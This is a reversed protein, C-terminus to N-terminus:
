IRVPNRDSMELVPGKVRRNHGIEVVFKGAVVSGGEPPCERAAPPVAGGRLVDQLGCIELQDVSAGREVSAGLKSGEQEPENAARRALLAPAVRNAGRQRETDEIAPV